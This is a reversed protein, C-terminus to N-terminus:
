DLQRLGTDSGVSNKNGVPHSLLSEVRFMIPISFSSIEVSPLRQFQPRVFSPQIEAQLDEPIIMPLLPQPFKSVFCFQADESAHRVSWQRLLDHNGEISPMMALICSRSKTRSRVAVYGLEQLIGNISSKCRCLLVKLQRTNICIMPGVFCIGCIVARAEVNDSSREIYEMIIMLENAFTVARRDRITTRKNQYFGSCLKIFENQDVQSLLNWFSPPLPVKTAPVSSKETPTPLTM